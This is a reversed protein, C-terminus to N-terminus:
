TRESPDAIAYGFGSRGFGNGNYIMHMRGRWKYVHAYAVMEADWGQEAVDIGALEDKRTWTIGNRSEAYGIRYSHAKNARYGNAGRCSFWMRYLDSDPVVCPRSIGGEEPSALDISVRGPRQWNVGDESEAYRINYFPEPKGDFLEWKLGSTYWMKWTRNEVLVCASACLHPEAAIRDAVPGTHERRFTLGGDSSVALGISNRYPVTAGVNVGIYYLYKLGAHNVIWAPIVGSDDFCGLEGLSLVPQDHIYLVQCPDAASVELFTPRARNHSDRTGFYIRLREGDIRDVVPLQAHSTMWEYRGDPAFILGQKIWRM